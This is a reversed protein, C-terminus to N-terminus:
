SIQGEVYGKSVAYEYVALTADDARTRGAVPMSGLLAMMEAGVVTFEMDGMANGDIFKRLTVKAEVTIMDIELRILVHSVTSQKVVPM